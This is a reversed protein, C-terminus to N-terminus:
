VSHPAATTNRPLPPRQRLSRSTDSVGRWCVARQVCSLHEGAAFTYNAAGPQLLRGGDLATRDEMAFRRGQRVAVGVLPAPAAYHQPTSTSSTHSHSSYHLTSRSGWLGLHVGLLWLRVLLRAIFM